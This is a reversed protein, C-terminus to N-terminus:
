GEKAVIQANNGTDNTTVAVLSLEVWTTWLLLGAVTQQNAHTGFLVNAALLTRTTATDNGGKCSTSEETSAEGTGRTVLKTTTEGDHSSGDNEENTTSELGSGLGEAVEIGAAQDGTNANAEQGHNNPSNGAM